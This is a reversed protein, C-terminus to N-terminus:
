GDGEVGIPYTYPKPTSMPILVPMVICSPYAKDLRLTAGVSMKLAMLRCFMAWIPAVTRQRTMAPWNNWDVATALRM